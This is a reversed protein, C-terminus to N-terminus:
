LFIQTSISKGDCFHTTGFCFFIAVSCCYRCKYELYDTGHKPCIQARSIDSCGGCVLETPDYKEGQEQDCRVEGGYYAKDCQSCMYYAYKDMAFQAMDKSSTDKIGEYHLRMLAKRKVDNKLVMIPELIDNLSEHAIDSKCIPCMSFGFTIRAGHWRKVLVQKCCRYHFVHGCHLQISPQASLAETFCIMCMDDGDQTLKPKDDKANVLRHCKPELCLCKEENAIGNCFHGCSLIKNCAEAAYEQCQQEACVNGVALLGTNGVTGCFRCRGIADSTGSVIASHGDRFEVMGKLTKSDALALLWFLKTRGCNEHLEVSIAEEEEKCM